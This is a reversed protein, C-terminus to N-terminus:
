NGNRRQKLACPTNGYKIAKRKSKSGGFRCYDIKKNAELVNTFMCLSKQASRKKVPSSKMPSIRSNNTFGEPTSVM